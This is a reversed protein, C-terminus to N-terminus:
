RMLYKYKNFINYKEWKYSFLETSLAASPKKKKKKRKKGKRINGERKKKGKEEKMGQMYKSICM